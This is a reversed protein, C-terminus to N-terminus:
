RIDEGAVSFPNSLINLKNEPPAKVFSLMNAKPTIGYM